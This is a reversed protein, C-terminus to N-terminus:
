ILLKYGFTVVNLESVIFPVDMLRHPHLSSFCLFIPVDDKGREKENKEDPEM